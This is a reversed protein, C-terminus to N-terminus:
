DYSVRPDLLAYVMDTVLNICHHGDPRVGARHGPDDPLRACFDFQRDARWARALHVGDRDGGVRGDALRHQRGPDHGDGDARQAACPPPDAATDALGKTRAFQVHPAQMVEILSARLTRILIPALSATITIAPLSCTGCGIDAFPRPWLGLPSLDALGGRLLILLNLGLWFSPM